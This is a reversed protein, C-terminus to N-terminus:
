SMGKYRKVFVGLDNLLEQKSYIYRGKEDWLCAYKTYLNYHMELSKNLGIKHVKDPFFKLIIEETSIPETFLNIIKINNEEAKKIDSWLRDLFYYQFSSKMNIMDLCNGNLLDYIVNKKIGNGFLAPLRAIMCNDFENMCFNEFRLRNTGYAHNDLSSCDFDEDCAQVVPYVDITSILIFNKANVTKLINELSRITELDKKPEKNALWKVAPVGAFVILEYEKNLLENINSSNYLDDFHYQQKLNSGVFGTYGVLATKM